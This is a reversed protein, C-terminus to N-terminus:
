YYQIAKLEGFTFKLRTDLMKTVWQIYESNIQNLIFLPQKKLFCFNKLSLINFEQYIYDINQLFSISHTKKNTNYQFLNSICFRIPNRILNENKGHMTEFKICDRLIYIEYM